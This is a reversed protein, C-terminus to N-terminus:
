SAVGAAQPYLFDIGFERRIRPSCRRLRHFQSLRRRWCWRWQGFGSTLDSDNDGHGFVFVGGRFPLVELPTGAKELETDIVTHGWRLVSCKQRGQPSMDHPFQILRSSVIANTGCNYSNEVEIWRSGYRYCYGRRFIWGNAHRNRHAHHALRNSVLDDADMLMVFDPKLEGARIMGRALKSWKDLMTKRPDPPPPPFDIILVELRDDIPTNWDPTEHCILIVKLDPDTQNLASRVSAECLRSTRRWDQALRKSKLAMLFCVMAPWGEEARRSPLMPM